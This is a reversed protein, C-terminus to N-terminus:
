IIMDCLDLNQKKPKDFSISRWNENISTNLAEKIMHNFNHPNLREVKDCKDYLWDKIIKFSQNYDLGRATILYPAIIIRIAFKRHDNIPIQLLKEIWPIITITSTGRTNSICYYPDGYYYQLRFFKYKYCDLVM